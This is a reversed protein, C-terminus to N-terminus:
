YRVGRAALWSMPDVKNGAADWVEFHLHPGTSYGRNGMEAILEGAKVRQGTQALARNIHGYITSSGDPHKIRVWLGFGSAPGAEVVVGDGAAYIPTGITNAIDIGWHTTGWRAGYGSTIIGTTPQVALAAVADAAQRENAFQAGFEVAKTLNLVDVVDSVDTLPPLDSALQDGGLGRSQASNTLPDSPILAGYSQHAMDPQRGDIVLAALAQGAAVVAGAVVAAITARGRLAVPSAPIRHSAGNTSAVGSTV